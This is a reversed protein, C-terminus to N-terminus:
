IPRITTAPPTRREASIEKDSSLSLSIRSEFVPSNQSFLPWREIAFLEATYSVLGDAASKKSSHVESTFDPVPSRPM